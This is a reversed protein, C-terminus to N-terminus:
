ADVLVEFGGWFMRTVDFTTMDMDKMRPDAMVKENVADRQERSEYVIWAFIVTEGPQLEVSRPFSTTEGPHLDDAVCEIYELAGHDRWVAGAAQAIRRYDEIKETPVPLVFGDVYRGKMRAEELTQTSEGQDQRATARGRDLLVLGTM